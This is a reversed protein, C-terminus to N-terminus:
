WRGRQTRRALLCVPFMHMDCGIWIMYMDDEVLVICLTVVRSPLGKFCASVPVLM